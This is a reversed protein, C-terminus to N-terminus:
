EEPDPKDPKMDECLGSDYEIDHQNHCEIIALESSKVMDKASLDYAQLYRMAEQRLHKSTSPNRLIDFRNQWMCAIAVDYLLRFNPSRRCLDTLFRHGVQHLSCFQAFSLSEKKQSWARLENSLQDIFNATISYGNCVKINMKAGEGANERVIRKRGM